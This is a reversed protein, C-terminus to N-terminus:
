PHIEWPTIHQESLKRSANKEMELNVIFHIPGREEVMPLCKQIMPGFHIRGGKFQTKQTNVRMIQFFFIRYSVLDFEDPRKRIKRSKETPHKM